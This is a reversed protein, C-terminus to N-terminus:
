LLEMSQTNVLGKGLKKRVMVEDVKKVKLIDWPYRRKPKRKKGM